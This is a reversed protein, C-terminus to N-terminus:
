SLAELWSQMGEGSRASTRIVPVGPHVAQVNAVASEVDCGVADALDIKSLLVIDAWRFAPPYKLPKDEGEPTSFMLVRLHEGLDFGVPCVLNGVNEVFLYDVGPLEWGELQEEIMAAELHCMGATRIQRVPAGSHALRRADLDTELDGVLAAARGQLEALTRQLWATKGSGPSSMLNIVWLGDRQFRQRLGAAADDNRSLLARGVELRRSM